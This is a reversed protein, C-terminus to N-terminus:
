LRDVDEGGKWEDVCEGLGVKGEDEEQRERSDQVGCPSIKIILNTNSTPSYTIISAQTDVAEQVDFVLLKRLLSFILLKRLM